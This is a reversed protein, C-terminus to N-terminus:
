PNYRREDTKTCGICPLMGTSCLFAQANQVPTESISLAILATVVSFVMIILELVFIPVQEKLLVTIADVLTHLFVAFFFMQPKKKVVATWVLVSLAIHLTVASLREVPVAAFLAPSAEKLQTFATQLTEQQDAPVQSLLMQEQGANIM